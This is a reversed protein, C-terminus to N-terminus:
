WREKKWCLKSSIFCKWLCVLWSGQKRYRAIYQFTKCKLEFYILVQFSGNNTCAQCRFISPPFPVFNTCMQSSKKKIHFWLLGAEKTEPLSEKNNIGSGFKWLITERCFLSSDSKHCALYHNAVVAWFLINKAFNYVRSAESFGASPLTADIPYVCSLRM